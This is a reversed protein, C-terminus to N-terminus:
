IGVAGVLSVVLPVVGLLVFAPLFCLGLPLVAVVGARRAAVDAASRAAARAENAVARLVAAPAAGSDASRVVARALARVPPPNDPTLLAAWATRLSVGLRAAHVAARLDEALPGDVASTAADLADDVSAGAAVCASVLDAVLPVTAARARDREAGAKTPLTALLRDTAFAVALAAFPGARAGAVVYTALAALAVALRRAAPTSGAGAAPRADPRSRATPMGLRRAAAPRVAIAAAAAAALVAVQPLLFSAPTM